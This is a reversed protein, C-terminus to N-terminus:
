QAFKSLSNEGGGFWKRKIQGYRNHFKDLDEQRSQPVKSNKGGIVIKDIDNMKLGCHDLIVGICLEPFGPQNKIKSIREEQIAYVVKNDKMLIASANLGTNIGLIYM